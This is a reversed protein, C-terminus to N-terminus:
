NPSRHAAARASRSCAAREAADFAYALALPEIAARPAMPRDIVIATRGKASRRPMSATSAADTLIAGVLADLPAGGLRGTLWHGTEWNPATAGSTPRRRSVRIPGRTGPGCISREIADIM